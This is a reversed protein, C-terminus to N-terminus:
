AESTAAKSVNEVRAAKCLWRAGFGYISEVEVRLMVGPLEAAPLVHLSNIVNQFNFDEVEVAEVGEFVLTVVVNQALAMEYKATGEHRPEYQRVQVSIQAVSRKEEPKAGRELTFSLVEADHFSPWYGLASVVKGSGQIFATTPQM